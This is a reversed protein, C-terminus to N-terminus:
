VCLIECLVYPDQQEQHQQGAIKSPRESITMSKVIENSKDFDPTYKYYDGEYTKFDPVTNGYAIQFKRAVLTVNSMYSSTCSFRIYKANAAGSIFTAFVSGVVSVDSTTLLAGSLYRKDKDYLAYRFSVNGMSSSCSINIYDTTNGDLNIFDTVKNANSYIVGSAPDVYGDSIETEPNYRNQSFSAQYKVASKVESDVKQIKNYLIVDM